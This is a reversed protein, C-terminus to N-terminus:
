PPSTGTTPSEGLSGVWEAMMPTLSASFSLSVPTSTTSTWGPTFSLGYRLEVSYRISWRVFYRRVKASCSLSARLPADRKKIVLPVPHCRTGAGAPSPHRERRWIRPLNPLHSPYHAVQRGRIWCLSGVNREDRRDLLNGNSAGVRFIEDGSTIQGFDM